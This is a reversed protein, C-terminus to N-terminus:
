VDEADKYRDWSKLLAYASELTINPDYPFTTWEIYKYIDPPTTEDDSRDLEIQRAERSPYSFVELMIHRNIEIQINNIRHYNLTLGNPMTIAKQLAM